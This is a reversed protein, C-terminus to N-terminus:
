TARKTPTLCATCIESTKWRSSWRQSPDGRGGREGSARERRRREGGERESDSQRASRELLNEVIEFGPWQNCDGRQVTLGAHNQFFCDPGPRRERCVRRRLVKHESLAHSQPAGAQPKERERATSCRGSYVWLAARSQQTYISAGVSMNLHSQAQACTRAGATYGRM